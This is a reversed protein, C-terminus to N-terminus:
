SALSGLREVRAIFRYGSGVVTEIFRPEEASDSLVDRLKKVAVNLGLEFDVFVDDPWLTNQLQERTVVKGANELLTVLVLLPKPQLKLRLGLKRLEPPDPRFEFDGFRFVSCASRAATAV